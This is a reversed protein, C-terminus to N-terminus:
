KNLRCNGRRICQFVLLCVCSSYQLAIGKESIWCWMYRPYLAICGDLFCMLLFGPISNQIRKSTVLVNYVCSIRVVAMNMQRMFLPSSFPLHLTPIFDRGADNSFTVAPKLNNFVTNRCYSLVSIPYHSVIHRGRQSEDTVTVLCCTDLFYPYSPPARM